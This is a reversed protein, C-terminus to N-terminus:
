PLPIADWKNCTMCRVLREVSSISGFNVSALEFTLIMVSTTVLVLSLQPTSTALNCPPLCNFHREMRLSRLIPKMKM